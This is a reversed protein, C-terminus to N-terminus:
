EKVFRITKVVEGHAIKVFYLGTKLDTVQQSIASVSQYTHESVKEGQVGYISVTVLEDVLAGLQINLSANVPNPALTIETTKSNDFVVKVVKSVSKSGDKDVILLRYYVVREDAKKDDTFVYASSTNRADVKGAAEFHVGNSSREITFYAANREEATKWTLEAQAAGSKRATFSVLKVPLPNSPDTGTLIYKDASLYQGTLINNIPDITSSAIMGWNAAADQGIMRIGSENNSMTGTWADKYIVDAHYNYTGAAMEMSVYNYMFNQNASVLPPREGVYQRVQVSAPVAAFMDYHIKAVTDGLFVFSQTTGAVPTVPVPTALPPVSTPTIEYAGIDPVGNFPITARENGTVDNTVLANHIARGNIWWAITDSELPKLTGTAFPVKVYHSISDTNTRIVGRFADFNTKAYNTNIVFAVDTGNANHYLNNNLEAFALRSLQNTGSGFLIDDVYLPYGNETQIINSVVRIGFPAVNMLNSAVPEAQAYIGYNPTYSAFTSTKSSNTKITNNYVNVKSTSMLGLGLNPVDATSSLLITNSVVNASGAENYFAYRNFRIGAGQVLNIQNQVLNANGCVEYLSIGNVMAASSSQINNYSIEFGNRFSLVVANHANNVFTNSDIVVNNSYQNKLPIGGFNIGASGNSIRNNIIYLDRNDENGAYFLTLDANNSAAVRASVNCYKVYIRENVISNTVKYSFARSYNAGRNNVSMKTVYINNTGAFLIVYNNSDHTSSDTLLVDSNLGSASTFTITNFIGSGPIAPIVIRENYTGTAAEFTVAGNVGGCKLANVAENFSTFNRAGSGATNITYIGNMPECYAVKLTDNSHDKDSVGNPQSTWTKIAFGGSSPIMLGQNASVLFRVTDSQGEALSGTYPISHITSGSEYTVTASTLAGVGHNKIIVIVDSLVGQAVPLSPFTVATIGGDERTPLDYENVGIDPTSLSRTSDDIDTLIGAFPYGKNNLIANNTRLNAPSLFLPNTEISAANNSGSAKLAAFTAYSTGNLMYPFNQMNNHYYCNNDFFLSTATVQFISGQNTNKLINNVINNSGNGNVYLCFGSGNNSANVEVTNYVIDNNDSNARLALTGNTGSGAKIMNNAIVSRGDVATCFVTQIASGGLIGSINNKEILYGNRADRVLIAVVYTNTGNGITTATNKQIKVAVQYWASIANNYVSDFVSNRIVNGSNGASSNGMLTVGAYGGKISVSDVLLNNSESAYVSEWSSGTSVPLVFKCNIISNSDANTLNFLVSGSANTTRFLIDRFIIHSTNNINVTSSASSTIVTQATDTGKFTITNVGSLGPIRGINVRENYIQSASTFTFVVPGCIGDQLSAIAQSISTFDAGADGITFNGSIAPTVNMSLTDDFNTTDAVGNPLTTWAKITQTANSSFTVSGLNVLTDSPDVGGITDLVTYFYFPSQLVGNIEWDVKLSYLQNKGSNGIRVFVDKTVTSGSCFAPIPAFAKVAGNNYTNNLIYVTYDEVESWGASVCPNTPVADEMAIVRMRTAGGSATGPITISGSLTGNIALSTSFIVKEGSEFIENRNYDIWVAAGGTWGVSHRVSINYSSGVMVVPPTVSSTLNKYYDSAQSGSTICGATHDLTAFKVNLISGGTCSGYNWMGSPACYQARLSAATSLFLLMVLAHRFFAYRYSKCSSRTNQQPSNM